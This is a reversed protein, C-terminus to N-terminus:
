SITSRRVDRMPGVTPEREWSRRGRGPSAPAPQRIPTSRARLDGARPTAASMTPVTTATSGAPSTGVPGNRHVTMATVVPIASPASTRRGTAIGRGMVANHAASIPTNTIAVNLATSGNCAHIPVGSRRSPSSAHNVNGASNRAPCAHVERAAVRSTSRAPVSPAITSPTQLAASSRPWGGSPSSNASARAPPGNPWGAYRPAAHRSMPGSAAAVASSRPSVRQHRRRRARRPGRSSASASDCVRRM